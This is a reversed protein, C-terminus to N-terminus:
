GSRASSRTPCTGAIRNGGPVIWTINPALLQQLAAGSGGAYFQNRARHLRDLLDIAARRNM